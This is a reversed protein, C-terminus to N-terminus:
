VRHRACFACALANVYIGTLIQMTCGGDSSWEDFCFTSQSDTQSVPQSLATWQARGQAYHHAGTVCFGLSGVWCVRHLHDMLARSGPYGNPTVGRVTRRWRATPPLLGRAPCDHCEQAPKDAVDLASTSVQRPISLGNVIQHEDGTSHRTNAHNIMPFIRSLARYKCPVSGTLLADARMLMVLTARGTSTSAHISTLQCHASLPNHQMGTLRAIVTRTVFTAFQAQSVSEVRHISAHCHISPHICICCM